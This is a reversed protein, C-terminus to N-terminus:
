KIGLLEGIRNSEKLLTDKTIHTYRRTITANSHTMLKCLTEINAGANILQSAFTHRLSHLPRISEPLGARAMIRRAPRSIKTRQKGNKGPFIYRNYGTITKENFIQKAENNLPIDKDKGSKPDRLTICNALISVDSWKLKLIESKRLGTCLALKMIRGVEKNPDHDISRLLAAIQISSLADNKKNNVIPYKIRFSLSECLGGSVGFNILRNLLSLVHRVTQASLKKSLRASLRHLDTKSIQGPSRPGFISKLYKDYRNKDTSFSKYNQKTEQYESWLRDISYRFSERKTESRQAKNSPIVGLIKANRLDVAMRLTMGELMRGAKEEIVKGHRRYRIYIIKGRKGTVIYVGTHRTVEKKV